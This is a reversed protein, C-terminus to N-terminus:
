AGQQESRVASSIAHRAATALHVERVCSCWQTSSHGKNESTSTENRKACFAPVSNTTVFCSCRNVIVQDPCITLSTGREPTGNVSSQQSEEEEEEEEREPWWGESEEGKVVGVL